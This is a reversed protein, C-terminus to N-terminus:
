QSGSPGGRVLLVSCSARGALRVSEQNRLNDVFSPGKAPLVILDASLNEAIDLISSPLSGWHVLVGCNSHRAEARFTELSERAKAEFMQEADWSYDADRITLWHPLITALTLRADHDRALRCAIAITDSWEPLKNLNIPLLIDKFM